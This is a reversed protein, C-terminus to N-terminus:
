FVKVGPSARSPEHIMTEQRATLESRRALEQSLTDHQDGPSPARSGRPLCPFRSQSLGHPWRLDAPMWACPLSWVGSKHTSGAWSGSKKQAGWLRTLNTKVDKNCHLKAFPPSQDIEEVVDQTGPVTDIISFRPPRPGKDQHSAVRLLAKAPANLVPRCSTFHFHLFVATLGAISLGPLPGEEPAQGWALRPPHLSPQLSRCM